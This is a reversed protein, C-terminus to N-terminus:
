GARRVAGRLKEKASEDFPLSIEVGPRLFSVVMEDVRRGSAAEVGMAYAAVQPAHSLAREKAASKPISDTKFDMVVLADGEEFVLDASGKLLRGELRCLFPLERWRRAASAARQFVPRGAARQILGLATRTDVEDLEFGFAIEEAEAAFDKASRMSPFDLRALLAHVLGGFARAKEDQGAELSSVGYRTWSPSGEKEADVGEAPEALTSPALFSPPAPWTKLAALRAELADREALAREEKDKEPYFAADPIRLIDEDAEEEVPDVKMVEVPGFEGRAMRVPDVGAEALFDWCNPSRGGPFVPVMLYDRARTAAVYLLRKEEALQFEKEWEGAKAYGKSQLFRGDAGLRIEMTGAIRNVVHSEPKRTTRAGLDALAVASFELGKAGHFTMFRVPEEGEAAEPEAERASEGEEILRDLRAGFDAAGRARGTEFSLAMDLLKLLNAVRREGDAASLFLPYAGTRRFIEELLARAGMGSRLTHLEEIEERARALGPPQSGGSRLHFFFRALDRDSFGYLPSRLAAALALPDAPHNVARLVAVAAAVETREFFRHDKESVYRIGARRFEEEFEPLGTRARFLVAIDGYRLERTGGGKGSVVLNEEEVMRRIALALNRAERRRLEGASEREGPAGEPPVSDELLRVRPGAEGRFPELPLYGPQLSPRAADEVILRSFVGNVWDIVGPASRFNQRIRLVKGYKSVIRSAEHYVAIDARRFRYISQKPDGVLFLGGGRLRVKRWDREEPDEGALLLVIEVQLPDTDQFEDVLIHTFRERFHRRAGPNERILRAAFALMEDFGVLGEARCARGYRSAFNLFSGTLLALIEHSVEARASEIFHDFGDRFARLNEKGQWLRPSGVRKNFHFPDWLARLLSPVSEATLGEAWRGVREIELFAKDTWDGCAKESFTRWRRFAAGIREKLAAASLNEPRPFADYAGPFSLLADRLPALQDVRFGLELCTGLAPDGAAFREGLWDKWMRDRLEEQGYLDIEGVGPPLGMDLPRERLLALAFGHITSIPAGDIQGLAAEVEASAEGRERAQKRESQLRARIRERLEAAAKNTFTIAAIQRLPVKKEKVLHLVRDVLLRTKGTGAAAEVLLPGETWRAALDREAQDILPRSM